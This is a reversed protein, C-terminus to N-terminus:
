DSVQESSDLSEDAPEDTDDLECTVEYTQAYNSVL